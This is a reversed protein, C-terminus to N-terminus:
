LKAFSQPIQFAWLPPFKYECDVSAFDAAMEGGLSYLIEFNHKTEAYSLLVFHQKQTPFPSNERVVFERDRKEFKLTLGTLPHLSVSDAGVRLLVAAALLGLWLM